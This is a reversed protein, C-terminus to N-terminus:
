ASDGSSTAPRMSERIAREAPPSARVSRELRTSRKLMKVPARATCSLRCSSVMRETVGRRVCVKVVAFVAVKLAVFMFVDSGVFAM